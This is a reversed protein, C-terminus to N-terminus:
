GLLKLVGQPVQNAQALMATAAQSLIQNKTFDSMEKAMDVDRIRSEAATMNESIVSLNSMTHELRNQVSGLNSREASVKNIADNIINTAKEANEQTDVLIGKTVTADQGVFGQGDGIAVKSSTFVDVQTTTLSDGVDMSNMKAIQAASIGLTIGIGLDVTQASSGGLSVKTLPTEAGAANVLTLALEKDNYDTADLGGALTGDAVVVDASTGTGIRTSASVLAGLASDGNIADVVVQWTADDAVGVTWTDSSSDYSIGPTTAAEDVIIKINNGDAGPTKATLELGGSAITKTAAQASVSQLSGLDAGGSLSRMTTNDGANLTTAGNATSATVLDALENTAATDTNIKTVVDQWTAASGATITFSKPDSSDATITVTSTTDESDFVMKVSIDNGADGASKAKLILNGDSLNLSSTLAPSTGGAADVVEGKVTYSASVASGPLSTSKVTFASGKTMIMAGEDATIGLSKADMASISFNITEGANAGIQFKQDQLTGSLLNKTNFQTTNSTRSIEKALQDMEKQIEIRDDNTMTDSSAQVSLEKMRQLISATENLAGEATQILSVAEQANSQARNLGRIQGRMKESVALGAADDAARGIRLGSSLKELSKSMGTQAANLRGQTNLASLNTNIRM